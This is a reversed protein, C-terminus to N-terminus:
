QAKAVKVNTATGSSIIFDARIEMSATLRDILVIRDDTYEALGTPTEPDQLVVFNMGSSKARGLLRVKGNTGYSDAQIHINFNSGDLNFAAGTEDTTASAVDLLIENSM